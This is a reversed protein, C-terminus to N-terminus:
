LVERERVVPRDVVRERTAVTRRPPRQTVLEIVLWVVGILFLILGITQISIGAITATVALWLILGVAILAIPPGVDAMPREKADNRGAYGEIRGPAFRAQVCTPATLVRHRREPALEAVNEPPHGDFEARAAMRLVHVPDEDLEDRRHALYVAVAAAM